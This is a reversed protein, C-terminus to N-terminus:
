PANSEFSFPILGLRNALIENWIVSNNRHIDVWEISLTPIESIMINRLEGVFAHDIDSIKFKIKEKNKSLIQIKM